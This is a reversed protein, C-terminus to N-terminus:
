PSTLTAPAKPANKDGDQGATSCYVQLGLLAEEWKRAPGKWSLDQSMCEQSMRTYEATGYVKAARKIASTLAEVDEAYIRDCNINFARGIHFGNVGDQVTDVLGGTSAVIPV